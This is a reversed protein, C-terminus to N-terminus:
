MELPARTGPKVLYSSLLLPQSPHPLRPVASRGGM